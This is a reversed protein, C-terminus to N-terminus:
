REKPPGSHHVDFLDHGEDLYLMGQEGERKDENAVKDSVILEVTGRSDVEHPYKESSNPGTAKCHSQITDNVSFNVCCVRPRLSAM